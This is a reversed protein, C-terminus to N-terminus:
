HWEGQKVPLVTIEIHRFEPFTIFRGCIHIFLHIVIGLEVFM